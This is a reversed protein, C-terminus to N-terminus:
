EVRIDLDDHPEPYRYLEVRIRYNGGPFLASGGHSRFVFAVDNTESGWPGLKLEYLTALRVEPYRLVVSDKEDYVRLEYWPIGVVTRVETVRTNRVTVTGNFTDGPAFTTRTTRLEVELGDPGTTRCCLALLAALTTVLKVYRM